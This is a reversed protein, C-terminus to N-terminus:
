VSSRSLYRSFNFTWWARYHAPLGIFRNRIGRPVAAKTAHRGQSSRLRDDNGRPYEYRQRRKGEGSPDIGLEIRRRVQLTAFRRADLRCQLLLKM